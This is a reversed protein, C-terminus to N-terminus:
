ATKAIKLIEGTGLIKPFDEGEQWRLNKMEKNTSAVNWTKIVLAFLAETPLKAQSNMNALLRKRLVYEPMEKTVDTGEIVRTWFDKNKMPKIANFLYWLCAIHSPPLPLAGRQSNSYEVAASAGERIGPHRELVADMVPPRLRGAQIAVTAQSELMWLYRLASSLTSYNKEGRRALVDAITRPRGQDITDFAEVPLDTVVYCQFTKGSKVCAHLRHQGDILNGQIDFRITDGNLKWEGATMAAAYQEITKQSLPRNGKNQALWKSALKPTVRIPKNKM